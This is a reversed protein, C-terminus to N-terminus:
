SHQQQLEELSVKVLGEEREVRGLAERLFQAQVPNDFPYETENEEPEYVVLEVERDHFIASLKEFLNRNFEGPRLRFTATM